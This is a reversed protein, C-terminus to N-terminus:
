PHSTKVGTHNDSDQAVTPSQLVPLSLHISFQTIQPSQNQNKLFLLLTKHKSMLVILEPQLLEKSLQFSTPVSILQDPKLQDAQITEM